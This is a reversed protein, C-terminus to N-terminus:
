ITGFFNILRELFKLTSPRVSIEQPAGTRLYWGYFKLYWYRAKEREAETPFEQLWARKVRGGNKKDWMEVVVPYQLAQIEEHNLILGLEM